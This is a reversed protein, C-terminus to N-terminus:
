SGTLSLAEGKRLVAEAAATPKSDSDALLFGPLLALPARSGKTARVLVRIAAAGPKPHVPLVTVAGFDKALAALVDALGDARWILTVVGDARLLRAASRLWQELTGETAAHAQRRAHDPSPQQAVNFPPNMLVRAASGQALGAAIFDAASSEVDLCVARVRDALGNRQANGAALAALAPDIEVLTVNLGEIRRALALGGGGVGSGLDVAHDGSQASTAAALLIADHGVRHGRLPQRLVLRGGLVADESAEEASM